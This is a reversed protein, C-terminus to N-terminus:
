PCHDIDSQLPRGSVVDAGAWLLSEARILRNSQGSFFILHIRYARHKLPLAYRGQDAAMHVFLIILRDHDGGDVQVSRHNIQGM